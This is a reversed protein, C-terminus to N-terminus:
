QCGHLLNSAAKRFTHMGGGLRMGAAAGVAAGHWRGGRSVPLHPLLRELTAADQVVLATAESAELIYALEEISPYPPPVLAQSAHCVTRCACSGELHSSCTLVQVQRYHHVPHRSRLGAGRGGPHGACSIWPCASSVAGVPEKCSTLRWVAARPMALEVATGAGAQRTQQWGGAAARASCHWGALMACPLLSCGRLLSSLLCPAVASHASCCLFGEVDGAMGWAHPVQRDGPRVGLVSLGAAFCTIQEHLQRFTLKTHPQRHRDEIAPADGWQQAAWAFAQPMSQLQDAVGATPTPKQRVTSGVAQVAQTHIAQRRQFSAATPHHVDFGSRAPRRRRAPGAGAAARRLGARQQPAARASATLTAALM